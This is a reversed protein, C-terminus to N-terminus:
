VIFVTATTNSPAHRISHQYLHSSSPSLLIIHTHILTLTHSHLVIPPLAGAMKQRFVERWLGERWMTRAPRGNWKENGFPSPRRGTKAMVFLVTRTPPRGRPFHIARGGNYRESHRGARIKKGAMLLLIKRAKGGYREPAGYYRERGGYGNDTSVVM